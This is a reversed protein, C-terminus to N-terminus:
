LDLRRDAQRPLRTARARRAVRASNTTPSASCIPARPHPRRLCRPHQHSPIPIYDLRPGSTPSDYDRRFPRGGCTRWRPVPRVTLLRPARHCASPYGRLVDEAPLRAQGGITDRRARAGRGCACCAATRRSVRRSCADRARLMQRARSLPHARLVKLQKGEWTTFAGPWPTFARVQAPLAHPPRHGTSAVMRKPAALRTLTARRSTRRSRHSRAALWRPLTEILLDAGLPPWGTSLDGATEDPGIPTAAKALMPGTDLGEEMLMLTVGTEADGELIAANIPAAGRHRPLLSAHVNLCGFRPLALVDPPLIQGFAAVVILDPALARGARVGRTPTATGAPLRPAWSWRSSSSQRSSRRDGVGLRRTPAPSSM